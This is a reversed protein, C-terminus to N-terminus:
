YRLIARFQHQLKTICKEIIINIEKEKLTKKLDQFIFSITLSKKGPYEKLQYYVDFIEVSLIKDQAINKCIEIIEYYMVTNSVIISIDKKISPYNSFEIIKKIKKQKFNELCIEFIIVKRKLNLFDSINPHLVGIKGIKNKDVYIAASQGPHLSSIKKYCFKINELETFLSLITEVDGKLDYFDITRNPLNWSKPYCKGSVIGSLFLKQKVKSQLQSDPIFCLGSEFFRLNNQQRNQNYIVNNILGVWLSLRMASMDFSVPNSILLPIKNPIILNQIKPNVFAYNIVEYYGKNVLISKAKKLFIHKYENNCVINMTTILSKKNIRSYGYIRLIDSIIDEEISLDVRWHPPIVKWGKTNKYIVYGLRLLIQEIVISEINIGIIRNINSHKIIIAKKKSTKQKIIEQKILPGVKGNCISTILQTAYEIAYEQLDSNISYQYYDIIKKDLNNRKIIKKVVNFNFFLSGLFINKTFKNISSYQTSYNNGVVLLKSENSLVITGKKVFVKEKNYLIINEECNIKKLYIINTNISKLDIIHLPEGIEIYIFNIVDIIFNQPMIHCKILKEQMWLPTQVNINIDKIVRGLYIFNDIDLEQQIKIKKRSTVLSTKKNVIPIPLNNIISVERAIGLISFEDLRNTSINLKIITDKFFKVKQIDIGTFTDFPLKIINTSFPFLGLHFFSCFIGESQIGQVNIMKIKINNYLKSQSNAIIVKDKIKCSNKYSIIKLLKSCGIHVVYIEYKLDFINNQISIVEGIFVNSFQNIIQNVEEVELGLITLQKCLKKTTILPNVWERLWSESVNM